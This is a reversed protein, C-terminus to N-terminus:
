ERAAGAVVDVVDREGADEVGDAALALRRQRRQVQDAVEAAAAHQEAEADGAAQELGAARALALHDVRRHDLASRKEGGHEGAKEAGAAPGLLPAAIDEVAARGPVV